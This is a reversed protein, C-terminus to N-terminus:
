KRGIVVGTTNVNITATASGDAPDVDKITVTTNAWEASLPVGLAMPAGAATRVVTNGGGGIPNVIVNFIENMFPGVDFSQAGPGGKFAIIVLGNVQTPNDLTVAM